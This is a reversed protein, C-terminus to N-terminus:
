AAVLGTSIEGADLLRQCVNAQFARFINGAGFHIWAPAKRTEERVRARDFAPLVYGASEFLERDKGEAMQLKM